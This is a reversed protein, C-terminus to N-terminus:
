RKRELRAQVELETRRLYSADSAAVDDFEGRQAREAVLPLADAADLALVLRPGLEELAAWASEEAAVVVGGQATAAIVDDRSLLKEVVPGGQGFGGHFFEGRGAELVAHLREGAVGAKRALVALRSVSVMPVGGAECLGKAAAM